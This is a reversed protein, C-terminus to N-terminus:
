IEPEEDKPPNIKKSFSDAVKVGVAVSMFVLFVEFNFGSKVLDFTALGISIIFSTFMTLSTRSWKGKKKLTDNIIAKLIKM